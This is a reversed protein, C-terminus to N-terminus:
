LGLDDAQTSEIALRNAKRKSALNFSENIVADLKQQFEPRKVLGSLVVRLFETTNGIDTQKEEYRVENSLKEIEERSLPKGALAKQSILSTLRELGGFKEIRITARSKSAILAVKGVHRLMDLLEEQSETTEPSDFDGSLVPMVPLKPSHETNLRFEGQM